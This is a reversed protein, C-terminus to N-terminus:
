FSQEQNLTYQICSKLSGGGDIEDRSNKLRTELAEFSKTGCRALNGGDERMIRCFAARTRSKERPNAPRRGRDNKLSRARPACGPRVRRALRLGILSFGPRRRNHRRISSCPAANNGAGEGRPCLAEQASRRVISSGAFPYTRPAYWYHPLGILPLVPHGRACFRSSKKNGRSM